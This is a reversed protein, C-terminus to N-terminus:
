CVERGRPCLGALYNQQLIWIQSKDENLDYEYQRNTIETCAPAPGEYGQLTVRTPSGPYTPYTFIYNPHVRLGSQALGGRDPGPGARGPLILNGEDDYTEITEYHHAEGAKEYSGYKRLIYDDLEYSSLPWQNHVDIIENVQLIVWYINLITMCMKHYKTRDRVMRLIINTMCQTKM